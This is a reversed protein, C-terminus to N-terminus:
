HPRIRHLYLNKSPQTVAPLLVNANLVNMYIVTPLGDYAVNLAPYAVTASVAFRFVSSPAASFATSESRSPWVVTSPM